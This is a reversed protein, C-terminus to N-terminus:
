KDTVMKDVSTSQIWESYKRATAAACMTGYVGAQHEYNGEEQKVLRQVADSIRVTVKCNKTGGGKSSLMGKELKWDKM